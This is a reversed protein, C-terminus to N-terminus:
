LSGAYQHPMRIFRQQTERDSFFWLRGRWIVGVRPDGSAALGTDRSSVLCQGNAAPWYRDPDALFRRRHEESHFCVTQGKYEATLQADGKRLKNDDLLSALCFGGFGPQGANTAALASVAGSDDSDDGDISPDKSRVMELVSVLDGASQFGTMRRVVQLEPSVVLTTPYAEVRFESVLQSHDDADLELLVFDRRLRHRVREDTFTLQHMQKCPGCWSATIKVLIPRRKQRAEEAAQKYSRRWALRTVVSEDTGDTEGAALTGAVTAVLTLALSGTRFFSMSQEECTRHENGGHLAGSAVTQSIFVPGTMAVPSDHRRLVGALNRALVELTDAAAANNWRRFPSQLRGSRLNFKRFERHLEHRRAQVKELSEGSEKRILNAPSFSSQGRPLVPPTGPMAWGSAPEVSVLRCHPGGERVCRKKVPKGGVFVGRSQLAGFAL